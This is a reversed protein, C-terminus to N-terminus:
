HPKAGASGSGAASVERCFPLDCRSHMSGLAALMKEPM